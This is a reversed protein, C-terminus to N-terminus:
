LGEKVVPKEHSEIFFDEAGQVIVRHGNLSKGAIVCNDSKKIVKM